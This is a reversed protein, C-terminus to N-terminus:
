ATALAGRRQLARRTLVNLTPMLAVGSGAVVTLLIVASTLTGIVTAPTATVALAAGLAAPALFAVRVALLRGLGAELLSVRWTIYALSLAEFAFGIAALSALSAQWHAAAFIVPLALARVFGAVAFPRTDGKAMLAMGPVAQVMRLAWMAALWSTVAGLHAYHAGFIMPLVIGGCVIFGTLYLAALLVTVESAIKFEASLTRERRLTESFTPLLMAHSVKAAILGPVMTIMLAATFDALAEMGSLSGIILRDGQYVAILPIASALIPWGFALQRKLVARDFALGYRTAALAHSLGVSAAAQAISLWIVSSYDHAWALAPYTLALAAAQPVVEILMQPRNDFTRQAIRFDFHMFGKILPVLAALQFASSAHAAGFGEAIWPAALYLVVALLCGRLVSLTHCARIFRREAGDTAQVILRDAGLDTITEFMQLVLTITAAVGFDGKSLAHGIAANRVFSLGQATAFGSFLLAGQAAFRRPQVSTTSAPATM